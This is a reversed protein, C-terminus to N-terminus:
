HERHIRKCKITSYRTECAICAAFPDDYFFGQQEIDGLDEGIRLFCYDENHGEDDLSNLFDEIFAVEPYSNYWKIWTWHYLEAGSEHIFHTDSSSLMSEINEAEEDPLNDLKEELIKKAEKSLTIVIESRYGM